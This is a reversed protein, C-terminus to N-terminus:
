SPEVISKSLEKPNEACPIEPLFVRHWAKHHLACLWIINLRDEKLYSNHHAFSPFSNCIICGERVLEGRKIARAVANKALLKFKPKPHKRYTKKQSLSIAERRQEKRHAFSRREILRRREYNIRRWKRQYANLCDSCIGSIGSSYSLTPPFKSAPQEINCKNCIKM